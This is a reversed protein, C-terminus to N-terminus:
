GAPQLWSEILPVNLSHRLHAALRDIRRDRDATVFLCEFPPTLGCAARAASIFSHRFFDNDFLGHV